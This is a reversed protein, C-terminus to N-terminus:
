MEYDSDSDDDEDKPRQQNQPGRSSREVTAMVKETATKKVATQKVWKDSQSTGSRALRPPATYGIEGWPGNSKVTNTTEQTAATAASDQSDQSNSRRRLTEMGANPQMGTQPTTAHGGASLPQQIFVRGSDDTGAESPATSSSKKSGSPLSSGMSSMNFALKGKRHYEEEIEAEKIADEVNAEQDSVRQQCEWCHANDRDKSRANKSFEELSKFVGCHVCQLESGPTATCPLCRPREANFEGRYYISEKYKKLQNNSYRGPLLNKNCVICKVRYSRILEGTRM